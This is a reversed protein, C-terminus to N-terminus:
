LLRGSMRGILNVLQVQRNTGTKSFVAKLQSRLTAVTVGHADAIEVLDCGLALADTLRAEAATLGYAQRMLAGSPAVEDTPDIVMLMARARQFVDHTVAPLPAAHVVLPPGDPRPIAVAQRPPAASPPGHHLVSGILKGLAANTPGHQTFITGKLVTLGHGLHDRARANMRLVSGTADLLMGGCRMMDFADLAGDARAEALRLAMQGARQLHPIAREISEIERRSFRERHRSREASLLISQGGAPVLYIGAFWRYGFHGIFDANFPLHDLEDPTFIESETVVRRTDTLARMGRVLRPNDALWHERMGTELLEDLSATCNPMMPAAPGPLLVAGDAGLADAYEALVVRWLEPQTATEYFRDIVAALRDERLGSM